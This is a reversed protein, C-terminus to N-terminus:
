RLLPSLTPDSATRRRLKPAEIAAATTAREAPRTRPPKLPRAAAMHDLARVSEAREDDRLHYRTTRPRTKIM